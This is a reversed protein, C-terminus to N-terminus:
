APCGCVATPSFALCSIPGEHGAIVDVLNGTQTNWVCIEFPDKCGACVIEGTAPWIHAHTHTRVHTVAYRTLRLVSPRALHSLAESVPYCPGASRMRLLSLARIQHGAEASLQPAAGIDPM